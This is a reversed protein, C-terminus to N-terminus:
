ASETELLRNGLQWNLWFRCRQLESAAKLERGGDLAFM